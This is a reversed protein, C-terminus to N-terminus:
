PWRNLVHSIERYTALGALAPEVEGKSFVGPLEACLRDVRPANERWDSPAGPCRILWATPDLPRTEFEARIRELPVDHQTCLEERLLTRWYLGPVYRTLDRGVWAELSSNGPLGKQVRNRHHYEETTAAFGFSSCAACAVFLSEIDSADVPGDPRESFLTLTPAERLVVDYLGGPAVLFYGSPNRKRFAEFGRASALSGERRTESSSFHTPRLARSQLELLAKIAPDGSGPALYLKVIM